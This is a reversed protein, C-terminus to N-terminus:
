GARIESEAKLGTVWRDLSKELNKTLMGRLPRALRGEM